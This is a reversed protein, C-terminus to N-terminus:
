ADALMSDLRTDIWNEREGAVVGFLDMRDLLWSALVAALGTLLGTATASIAPALPALPTGLLVKELSEELLVGSIVVGSAVLLKTAEHLAEARTEAESRWVVRAARGLGFVGERIARVVRRGTRVVLNLLWTVLNSLFGSIAGDKLAQCADSWRAVVRRLVRRCREALARVLARPGREGPSALLAGLEDFCASVAEALLLGLAQQLGMKAAEAGGTKLIQGGRDLVAAPAVERLVRRRATRDAARTRAPDVGERSWESMPKSGKSANNSRSTVRLNDPHTAAAHAGSKSLYFDLHGRDKLEKCSVVHDVEPRGALPAGTYEDVGGARRLAAERQESTTDYRRDAQRRQFDKLKSQEALGDGGQRANRLTLVNGGDFDLHGIVAGLGFPTAITQLVGRRAQIILQDRRLADAEAELERLLKHPDAEPQRWPALPARDSPPPESDPLPALHAAALEAQLREYTEPNV